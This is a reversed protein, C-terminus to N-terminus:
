TTRRQYIVTNACERVVYSGLPVLVHGTILPHCGRPGDCVHLKHEALVSIGVRRRGSGSRLHHISSAHRECRFVFRVISERMECRGCSRARVKADEARELKVLDAAQDRKELIRPKPKPCATM